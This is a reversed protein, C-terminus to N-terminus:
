LGLLAWCSEGGWCPWRFIFCDEEGMREGKMAAASASAHVAPKAWAELNYQALQEEGWELRLYLM